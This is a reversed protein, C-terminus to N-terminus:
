RVSMFTLLFISEFLSGDNEKITAIATSTYSLETDNIAHLKKGPWLLFNGM